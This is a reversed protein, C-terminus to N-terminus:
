LLLQLIYPKANFLPQM